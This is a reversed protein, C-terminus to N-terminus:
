TLSSGLLLEPASRERSDTVCGRGDSFPVEVAAHMVTATVEQPGELPLQSRGSTVRWQPPTACSDHTRNCAAKNTPARIAFTQRFSDCRRPRRVRWLHGGAM